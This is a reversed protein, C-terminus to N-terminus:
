RQLFSHCHQQQLNPNPRQFQANHTPQSSSATAAGPVFFPEQARPVAEDECVVRGVMQDWFEENLIEALEDALQPERCVRLLTQRLAEAELADDDGDDDDSTEIELTSIDKGFMRALKEIAARRRQMKDM